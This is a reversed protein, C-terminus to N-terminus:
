APLPSPRRRASTKVTTVSATPAPASDTSQSAPAAGCGLAIVATLIIGLMLVLSFRVNMDRGGMEGVEIQLWCRDQSILMRCFVGTYLGNVSEASSEM